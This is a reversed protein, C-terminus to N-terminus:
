AVKARRGFASVPVTSVAAERAGETEEAPIVADERKAAMWSFASSMSVMDDRTMVISAAKVAFLAVLVIAFVVVQVM